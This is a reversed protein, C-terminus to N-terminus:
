QELERPGNTAAERWVDPSFGPYIAAFTEALEDRIKTWLAYEDPDWKNPRNNRLVKCVAGVPGNPATPASSELELEAALAADADAYSPHDAQPKRPLTM